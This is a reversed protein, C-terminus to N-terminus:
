MSEMKSIFKQFEMRTKEDPAEAMLERLEAIMNEDRSYGRSAYRGM